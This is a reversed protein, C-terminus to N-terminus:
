TPTWTPRGARNARPWRGCRARPRRHWRTTRRPGPRRRRAPGGCRGSWSSRCATPPDCPRRCPRTPSGRTRRTSGYTVQVDAAAPGPNAILVFLDFFPGTAGEALFWDTAPTTVGASSTGARFTQAPTSLYMSREVIIPLSSAIEASVDAASLAVNGSGEPFQENDVWVNFRSAAPVAYTKELPPRGGPQLYRVTVSATAANPNQLTYFLDFGSHTAGEALYWTTAPAAVSTEAHAANGNPGWTMSRDAVVPAASDVVTSFEADALGPVSSATVTRRSRAPVMLARSFSQGDRRLFRLVVSTDLDGPNLLAFRTDFPAITAGEAFYRVFGTQTDTSAVQQLYSATASRLGDSVAVSITCALTGGTTNVPATWRPAAATAEDFRGHGGLAAPCSASWAHSLPGTTGRVTASLAAPMGSAVPNPLGLPDVTLTVEPPPTGARLNSGRGTGWLVRAGATRPLDYAVLGTHATGVVVELDADGDLDAVTPAAMAGDWSQGAARPLDVAHLLGGMSSLVLLQGGANSGKQTWTTLIVEAQGDNDLDAVAPPSAFRLYGEGPRTVGYPWSGHETRDLWYAHLRGDYSAFLIEKRGDGDLDAVVPNPQVTEIVGYDESLPASAADPAPLSTWDFGSAAWRTRDGRLVYPAHFLSRYPSARCDYQNGVIVIELTGDGDLDAITPASDAFNPRPELPERGATCNAYGRLDVVHSYHFGVRAWPKAQGGVLGYLTSARVATGDHEFASVYHTDNPGVLELAGDGDIDALGVNQNFCGAAYGSTDSDTQKPWGARTAGTHELVYWQNDSVTSAVAIELGGNGDVDGVALSRLENGTAQRPWGAQP